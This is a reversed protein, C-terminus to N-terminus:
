WWRNRFRLWRNKKWYHLQFLYSFISLYIYKFVTHLYFSPHAWCDASNEASKQPFLNLTPRSIAYALLRGQHLTLLDYIATCTYFSSQTASTLYKLCTLSRWQTWSTTSSSCGRWSVSLRQLWCFWKNRWGFQTRMQWRTTRM